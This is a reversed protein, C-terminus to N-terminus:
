TIKLLFFSLEWMLKRLHPPKTDPVSRDPPESLFTRYSVPLCGMPPYERLIVFILASLIPMKEM